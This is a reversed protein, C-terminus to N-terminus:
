KRKNIAEMVKVYRDNVFLIVVIAAVASICANWVIVAISSTSSSKDSDTGKDMEKLVDYRKNKKIAYEEDIKAKIQDDYSSAYGAFVKDGIIIYPVGQAPQNLFTGVQDMLEANKSDYWTEYSVLKFKKGYEETISNLFTLFARCYGCGKGRFMYIIVQDDTEKYSKFEPDIGEEELTEKLDLSKYEEKANVCTPIIMITALLLVFLKKM